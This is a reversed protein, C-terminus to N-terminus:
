AMRGKTYVNPNPKRHSVTHAQKRKPLRKLFNMKWYTTLIPQPLSLTHETHKQCRIRLLKTGGGHAQQVCELNHSRKLSAPSHDEHRKILKRAETSWLPAHPHAVGM